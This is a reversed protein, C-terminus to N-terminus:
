PQPEYPVDVVATKWTMLNALAGAHDEDMSPHFRLGGKMPGRAMNHQVRFGEFSHLKGDDGEVAIGVKVSRRPTLLITRVNDPLGIIDAAEHFYLHCDSLM